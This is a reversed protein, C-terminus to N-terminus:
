PQHIRYLAPACWANGIRDTIKFGRILPLSVPNNNKLQLDHWLMLDREAARQDQTFLILLLAAHHLQPDQMIKLVDAKVPHTLDHAYRNSRVGADFQRTVKVELWYASHPETANQSAFLTATHDPDRLPLRGPTLVFDCRFGESKKTKEWAAPYRVERHVGFTSKSLGQEIIQHLALENQNDLGYVAQELDDQDAQAQLSDTVLDIVENADWYM